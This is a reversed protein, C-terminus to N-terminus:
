VSKLLKTNKMIKKLKRSKSLKPFINHDAKKPSKIGILKNNHPFTTKKISPLKSDHMYRKSIFHSTKNLKLFRLFM